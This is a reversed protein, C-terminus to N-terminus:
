LSDSQEPGASGLYGKKSYKSNSVVSNSTADDRQDREVNYSLLCSINIHNGHQTRTCVIFTLQMQQM